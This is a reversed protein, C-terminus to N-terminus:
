YMNKVKSIDAKPLQRRDLLHDSYCCQGQEVGCSEFMTAATQRRVYSVSVASNECFFAFAAKARAIAAFPPIQRGADSLRSSYMDGNTSGYPAAGRLQTGSVVTPKSLQM